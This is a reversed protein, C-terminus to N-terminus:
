EVTEFHRAVIPEVFLGAIHSRYEAFLPGGRFRVTHDELSDWQIEYIMLDPEEVCRRVTIGRCGHAGRIIPMAARLGALLADAKGSQARIEAIETIM